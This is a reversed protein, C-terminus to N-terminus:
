AKLDTFDDVLITYYWNDHNIHQEQKLIASYSLINFNYGVKDFKIKNKAFAQKNLVETQPYKKKRKNVAEQLGIGDMIDEAVDGLLSGDLLICETARFRTTLDFLFEREKTLEQKYKPNKICEEVMFWQSLYDLGFWQVSAYERGFSMDRGDEINEFLWIDIRKPYDWVQLKWGSQLETPQESEPEHLNEFVVQSITISLAAELQSKFVAIDDVNLNHKILADTGDAM